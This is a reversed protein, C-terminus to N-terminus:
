APRPGLAATVASMIRERIATDIDNLSERIAKELEDLQGLLDKKSTRAFTLAEALQTLKRRELVLQEQATM